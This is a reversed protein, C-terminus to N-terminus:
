RRSRIVTALEAPKVVALQPALRKLEQYQPHAADRLRLLYAMDFTVLFDAKSAIALNVFLSDKPDAQVVFHHPPEPAMTALSRIQLIFREINLPDLAAGYHSHLEPRSLVERLEAIALDSTFAAIEGARLSEWTAFTAGPRGAFAVLVSTDFVVRVPPEAM